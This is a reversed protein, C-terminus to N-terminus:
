WIQDALKPVSSCPSTESRQRSTPAQMDFNVYAVTQAIPVVPNALYDASGLLGDEEADWLAIVVSRRPAQEAGVISRGLALAAAVGTANDTAGNCISDAAGSDTCNSGLHDYHAGVIVYQDALDSGPIVALLNTGLDFAQRYADPGTAGPVLPQAFESLQAILFDQAAVSGPTGNDRGALDVSALTEVLAMRM